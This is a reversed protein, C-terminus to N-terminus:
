TSRRETKKKLGLPEGLELEMSTKLKTGLPDHPSQLESIMCSLILASKTDTWFVKSLPLKKGM